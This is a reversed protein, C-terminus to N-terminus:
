YVSDESTTWLGVCQQSPCIVPTFCVNTLIQYTIDRRAPIHVYSPVLDAVIVFYVMNYVRIIISIVAMVCDLRIDCCVAGKLCDALVGSYDTLEM